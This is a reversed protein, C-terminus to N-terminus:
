SGQGNVVCALDSSRTGLERGLFLYRMGAVLLHRGLVKHNFQDNRRSYPASRVDIVVSIAHAQLLEIFDGISHNSHGITFLPLM